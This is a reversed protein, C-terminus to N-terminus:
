SGDRLSFHGVGCFIIPEKRKEKIVTSAELNTDPLFGLCDQADDVWILISSDNKDTHSHHWSYLRQTVWCTKWFLIPQEATIFYPLVSQLSWSRGWIAFKQVTLQSWIHFFFLVLEPWWQGVCSGELFPSQELFEWQQLTVHIKLLSKRNEKAKEKKLKSLRWFQPNEGVKGSCLRKKLQLEVCINGGGNRERLFGECYM